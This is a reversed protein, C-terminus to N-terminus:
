ISLIIPLIILPAGILMILLGTSIQKERFEARQESLKEVVYPASPSNLPPTMRNESFGAAILAGLGLTLAGEIFLLSLFTTKDNSGFLWGAYSRLQLGYLFAAIFDILIISADSVAFVIFVKKWGSIVRLQSL